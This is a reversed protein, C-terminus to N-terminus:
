RNQNARRKKTLKTPKTESLLKQGLKTEKAHRSEKNRNEEINIKKRAEILSGLIRDKVVKNKRNNLHNVLWITFTGDNFEGKEVTSPNRSLYDTIGM